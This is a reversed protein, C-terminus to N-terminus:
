SSWICPRRHIHNTSFTFDMHIHSHISIKKYSATLAQNPTDGNRKRLLPKGSELNESVVLNQRFHCQM